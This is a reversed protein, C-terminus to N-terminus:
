VAFHLGSFAGGRGSSAVLLVVPIAPDETEWKEEPRLIGSQQEIVQLNPFVPSPDRELLYYKSEGCRQGNFDRMDDGPM